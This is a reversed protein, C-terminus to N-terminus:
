NIHCDIQINQMRYLPWLCVAIMQVVIDFTMNTNAFRVRACKMESLWMLNRVIKAWPSRKLVAFVFIFFLLDGRCLLQQKENGNKRLNSWPLPTNDLWIVGSYEEFFLLKNNDLMHLVIQFCLYRIYVLYRMEKLLISALFIGATVGM